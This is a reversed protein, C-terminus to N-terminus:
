LSNSLRSSKGKVITFYHLKTGPGVVNSGQCLVIQDPVWICEQVYDGLLVCESQNGFGFAIQNWIESRNSGQDLHLKTKSEFASMCLVSVCVNLSPGPSLHLKTGSEFM